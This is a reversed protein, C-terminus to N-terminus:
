GIPGGQGGASAAFTAPRRRRRARLAAMTWGLVVACGHAITTIAPFTVAYFVLGALALLLAAVLGWRAAGRAGRLQMLADGSLMCWVLSVGMAGLWWFAVQITVALVLRCVWGRHGRGTRQAQWALASASSLCLGHNIVSHLLSGDYSLGRIVVEWM